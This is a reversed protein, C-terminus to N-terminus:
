SSAWTETSAPRDDSLDFRAPPATYGPAAHCYVPSVLADAAAVLLTYRYM